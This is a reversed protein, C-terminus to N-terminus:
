NGINFISKTKSKNDEEVSYKIVAHLTRYAEESDLVFTKKMEELKANALKKRFDLTLVKVLKQFSIGPKTNRESMYIFIAEMVPAIRFM